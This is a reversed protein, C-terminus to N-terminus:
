VTSHVEAGEKAQSVGREAGAGSRWLAGWRKLLKDKLAEMKKNNNSNTAIEKKQEQAGLQPRAAQCWASRHAAFM